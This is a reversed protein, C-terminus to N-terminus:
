NSKYRHMKALFHLEMKHGLTKLTIDRKEKKVRSKPVPSQSRLQLQMTLLIFKNCQIATNRIWSMKTHIRIRIRPDMGRVLGSGSGEIKLM